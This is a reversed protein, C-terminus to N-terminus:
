FGIAFLKSNLVPRSDSLFGFSAIVPLAPPSLVPPLDAIRIELSYMRDSERPEEWFVQLSSEGELLAGRGTMIGLNRLLFLADMKTCSLGDESIRRLSRGSPSSYVDQVWHWSIKFFKLGKVTMSVMQLCDSYVHRLGRHRRVDYACM